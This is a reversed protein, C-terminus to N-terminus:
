KQPALRTDTGCHSRTLMTNLPRNWSLNTSWTCTLGDAAAAGGGQVASVRRGAAPQLNDRIKVLPSVVAAARKHVPLVVAALHV